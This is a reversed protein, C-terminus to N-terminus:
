AVLGVWRLHASVGEQLSTRPRWGVDDTIQTTDAATRRVDGTAADEHRLRLTRGVQQEFTRIADILSTESGGGVNYVRGEPARDM